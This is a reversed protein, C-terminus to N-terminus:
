QNATGEGTTTGGETGGEGEGGSKRQKVIVNMADIIEAVGRAFAGYKAADVKAMARLHVVIDDNIISLVEKKIRTANALTGEEAKIDGFLVYSQEFDTQAARLDNILRNLGPLAAIATQIEADAFNILMSEVHSSEIAYNELVVNIGFNELVRNVTQAATQVAEDPHYLNGHVFYFIARVKTDRAEDKLELNSEAKLRKVATTLELSKPRLAAFVGTLYLDSSFDYKEFEIIIRGSVTDVEANRCFPKLKNLNSM